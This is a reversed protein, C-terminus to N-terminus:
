LDGYRVIEFPLLIFPIGPYYRLLGRVNPIASVWSSANFGANNFKTSVLTVDQDFCLRKAM